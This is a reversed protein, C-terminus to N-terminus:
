AKPKPRQCEAHLNTGGYQVYPLSRAERDRWYRGEIDRSGTLGRTVIQTKTIRTVKEHRHVMNDMGIGTVCVVQGVKVQPAQARDHDTIRAM